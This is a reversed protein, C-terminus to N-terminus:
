RQVRGSGDGKCLKEIEAVSAVNFDGEVTHKLASAAVAYDIAHQADYGNTLAYILGAGFSDGGGVRDVIQITYKASRYCGDGDCLIGSWRNVSASISERLTFAVKSINPFMERVRDALAAYADADLEGRTVDSNAAAIGFVDKCDEENSILVDVYRMLDSMVRRAKDKSWLKNRYNLDCSVTVGRARAAELLRATTQAATDSVAPSIGTFHLWQADDLVRPDIEDATMECFASHARDYVVVSGRPGAGKECYYIGMREGGRVIASVDVGWGRLENVCRQAVANDPLKTLYSVREGMQALSVAVNAEGGGFVAEYRDAQLIRRHGFPQLRLMIEGFTVIRKNQAM